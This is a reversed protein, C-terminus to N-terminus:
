INMSVQMYACVVSVSRYEKVDESLHTLTNRLCTQSQSDVRQSAHACLCLCVCVCEHIHMYMYHIYCCSIFFSAMFKLTLFPIHFPQSPAFLLIFLHLRLFNINRIVFSPNPEAQFAGVLM